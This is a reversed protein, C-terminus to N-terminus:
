KGRHLGGGTERNMEMEQEFNIFARRLNMDIDDAKAYGPKYYGESSYRAEYIEPRFRPGGAVMQLADQATVLAALIAAGVNVGRGPKTKMDVEDFIKSFLKMREMDNVALFRDFDKQTIEHSVARGNIVATMKYKGEQEPNKEVKIEEVSVERGHRGERYFGKDDNLQALISGNVSNRQSNDIQEQETVFRGEQYEDANGIKVEDFLKAFMKLRQTDNVTLFKNYDKKSINQTIVEGNIEATMVFLNERRQEVKIEGVAVERGNATDRFWGKGEMLLAINRGNVANPNNAIRIDEQRLREQEAAIRQQELKQQEAALRQQELATDQRIFDAELEQRVSEKFEVNVLEKGKLMEMTVADKFDDKIVNNIIDLREDLSVGGKGSVKNALLKGMEEPTLDYYVDRRTAASQVTINKKNEDIIIGHSALVTKWKEATFYVPSTIEKDYPIAQGKPREAAKLVQIKPDVSIRDIVEQDAEKRNGKYYFGYGGAFLEGPKVRGDPRTPVMPGGAHFVRDGIRRLHWGETGRPAWGLFDGFWGRGGRSFPRFPPTGRYGYEGVGIRYGHLGTVVRGFANKASVFGMPIDFDNKVISTFTNYARKNMYNSGWGMLNEVQQSNLKYSLVPSDHGMVVLEYNGDPTITIHGQIGNRRLVDQLGPSLDVARPNTFKRVSM